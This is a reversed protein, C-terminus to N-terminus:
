RSRQIAAVLRLARVTAAVDHVRVLAAGQWSAVVAAAVSAELRQDVPLDLVQGIFSKRSAGILVPRGLRNLTPVNRLIRLSGEASKGFGIGPDLVIKDSSVGATNARSLVSRFFALLTEILDEYDTDRQMTKPDGRRHMAVAPAGREALLPLMAPDGFASVDNVLDAGADLARAAVAAKTTDISIRVPLERDIAEIVPLVRRLEEDADVPDAGPRTSEGGVDILDAGERIMREARRLAVAPDFHEGADSFSDPTVNLIGMVRTASLDLAEGDAFPLEHVPPEGM